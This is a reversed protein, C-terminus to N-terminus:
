VEEFELGLALLKNQRETLMEQIKKDGAANCRLYETVWKNYDERLNGYLRKTRDHAYGKKGCFWLLITAHYTRVVLEMDTIFQTRSVHKMVDANTHWTRGFVDDPKLMETVEDFDFGAYEKLKTKAAFLAFDAQDRSDECGIGYREMLNSIIDHTTDYMEQLRKRKYGCLDTVVCGVSADLYELISKGITQYAAILRDQRARKANCKM